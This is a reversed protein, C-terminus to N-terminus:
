QADFGIINHGIIYDYTEVMSRLKNPNTHTIVEGTEVDETVACWITDHTMNTELDIVLHRM